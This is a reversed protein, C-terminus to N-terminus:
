EEAAHPPNLTFYFTAGKNVEGECWIQGGHRLIIRKTIALGLGQGGMSERTHFAHFPLFLDDADKNDFGVGNDRIFFIREGDEEDVGFEILPKEVAKSFKIANNLLNEIAIQLLSESGYCEMDKQINIEPQADSHYKFYRSLLVSALLSINLKKVVMQDLSAHSFKLLDDLMLHLQEVSSTIIRTYEQLNENGELTEESLLTSFGAIHRLPVRLANSVSYNFAKLDSNLQKIEIYKNKIEEKALRLEDVKKELKDILRKNYVQFYETEELAEFKSEPQKGKAEALVEKTADLLQDLDEPKRLFRNAGLSLAFTEDKASIYTATYFIFPMNGLKKHKRISKCFQFGDMVPMLIDSIVIDIPNEELFSLAEQGNLSQFVQFGSNKLMVDLLFLNQENDDVILVKYSKDDM